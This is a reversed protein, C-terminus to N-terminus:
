TARKLAPSTGASNQAHRRDARSGASLSFPIADDGFPEAGNWDDGDGLGDIEQPGTDTWDDAVDIEQPDTDTWDGAPGNDDGLWASANALAGALSTVPQNANM